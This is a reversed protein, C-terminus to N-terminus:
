EHILSGSGTITSRVTAPAGTYYVDGVSRVQADLENVAWCRIDGTSSNNVRVAGARLAGADIPAMIGSYLNVEECRGTILADGAGTHLLIDLRGMRVSLRTSGEGGWQELLFGDCRLTDACRVDGTGRLTIRCLADVPAHVTIRPKFSRVWNCKMASRIRLTGESVETSIQGLLNEGGEVAISGSSRAELVLDIRDELEIATFAGVSRVETAHEGTGTVCDNWQERQCGMLAIASFLVLPKLEM